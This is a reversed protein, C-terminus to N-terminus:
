ISCKMAVTVDPAALVWLGLQCFYFKQPFFQNKTLITSDIKFYKFIVTQADIRAQFVPKTNNQVCETEYHKPQGLTQPQTPSLGRLVVVTHTCVSM